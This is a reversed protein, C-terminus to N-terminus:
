YIDIKEVKQPATPRPKDGPKERTAREILADVASGGAKAAPRGRLDDIRERVRRDSFALTFSKFFQSRDRAELTTRKDRWEAVRKKGTEKEVRVPRGYKERLKEVFDDFSTGELAHQAYAVFIKWLRGGIFFFYRDREGERVLLVSEGTGHRFEEGAIGVEMGTKKGDFKTYGVIRQAIEREMERRIARHELPDAADEFRKAFEKRIRKLIHARVQEVTAGWKLGRLAKSLRARPRAADASSSACLLAAAVPLILIRVM